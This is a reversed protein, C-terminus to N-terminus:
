RSPATPENKIEVQKYGGKSRFYILLLIYCVLMIVPLIVVGRIADKKAVNQIRTIIDIDEAPAQSLKEDNLSNYKGIISRKEDIVYTDSLDTSNEQDYIVLRDQIAKDQVYGLIPNGFTGVALMGVGAIANLTMAGGRPFQESVVGLTTPWFFAKGLGYVTAAALIAFGAAQSLFFLGCAALFASIALIGLPTFKRVLPGSNFRLVVMIVSTYILVWGANDGMEGEMLPTIWSDVGLETTALLMMILLLFIYLPRGMSRTYAYFAIASLLTMIYTFINGLEAIRGIEAFIMYAIIAAGLAGVERLMDKYSVGAAVREQIPFTRKWLILAYVVTPILILAIKAKWYLGTFLMIIVVGGLALGGPWGAHLINLWKTKEKNFATAVVPNIYAEVTGSGLALVLTGLYMMWYDNALLILVTSLSHCLLGFWMATKYGIKDIIFSFLVISIAFPWLGVGLIEGVQTESLGFEAGWESSTLVRAIFGFATAILAIFCGWFLRMDPAQPSSQSVTSQDM